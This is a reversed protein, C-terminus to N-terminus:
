VLLWGFSHTVHGYRSVRAPKRQREDDCSHQARVRWARVGAARGEAPVPLRVGIEGEGLEEVAVVRDHGAEHDLVGAGVPARDQPDLYWAARGARGPPRVRDPHTVVHLGRVRLGDLESDLDGP